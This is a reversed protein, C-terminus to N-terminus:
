LFIITIIKFNWWYVYVNKFSLIYMYPKFFIATLYLYMYIFIYTLFFNNTEFVYM